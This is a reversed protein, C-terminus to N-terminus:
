AFDEDVCIAVDGHIGWMTGPKCRTHYLETAKPNVPKGDLMGTDDVIMVIAPSDHRLTVSDCGDAGIAKYIQRMFPKSEVLEESGDVRIILWEGARTNLVRSLLESM